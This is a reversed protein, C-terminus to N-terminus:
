GQAGPQSPSEPGSCELSHGLPCLSHLPATPIEARRTESEQRGQRDADGVCVNRCGQGERLERGPDKDTLFGAVSHSSLWSFAKGELRRFMLPNQITQIIILIDLAQLIGSVM